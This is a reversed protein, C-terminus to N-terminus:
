SDFINNTDIPVHYCLGNALPSGDDVKFECAGVDATFVVLGAETVYGCGGSTPLKLKVECGAAISSCLSFSEFAVDPKSYTKKM